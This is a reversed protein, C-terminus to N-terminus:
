VEALLGVLVGPASRTLDEYAEAYTWGAHLVGRYRNLGAIAEDYRFKTLQSKYSAIASLKVPMVHSIDILHNYRSLPSWVEYALISAGFGPVSEVARRYCDFATRHDPHDDAPHPLFVVAPREERLLPALRGAVVDIEQRLYWDRGHLFEMRAVGLVTAAAHAESERVSWAEDRPLDSLALEGSTLHAVVVRDGRDAHMRLAGGCGISEDDPHPSIALVTM